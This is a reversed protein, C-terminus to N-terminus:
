APLGSLLAVLESQRHTGTKVFVSKLRKRVTEISLDGRDAISDLTAGSLISRTLASEAPTLDFLGHLLDTPPLSRRDLPTLLLLTHAAAFIDHIVIPPQEDIAPIPISCSAALNDTAALQELAQAFRVNLRSQAFSIRGFAAPRMLTTFAEFRSNATVLKGLRTITAAAIGIMDLTLIATRAREYALRSAMLTARALHPRVLDLRVAAEREAPEGSLRRAFRITAKHGNPSQIVTGTGFNTDFTRGINLYFPDGYWEQLTFLDTDIVFGDHKLAITRIYLSNRTALKNDVVYSVAPLFVESAVFSEEGDQISIVCGGDHGTLKAIRDLTPVWLAPACAAEYIDGVTTLLEDM